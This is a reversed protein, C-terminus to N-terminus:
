DRRHNRRRNDFLYIYIGITNEWHRNEKRPCDRRNTIGRVIGITNESRRHLDLKRHGEEKLLILDEADWLIKM